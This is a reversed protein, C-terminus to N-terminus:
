EQRTLDRLPNLAALRELLTPSRIEPGVYETLAVLDTPPTLELPDFRPSALIRVPPAEDISPPEIADLPGGMGISEPAAATEVPEESVPSTPSENVRVVLAAGIAAASAMGLALVARKPAPRPSELVRTVARLRENLANWARAGREGRWGAFDIVQARREIRPWGPALAIEVLRSPDISRVWEHMYNQSPADPSWIVLVADRSLMAADLENLSQRGYILRVRHQEAELLRVLTEALKRADHTCVTRIDIMLSAAGIV